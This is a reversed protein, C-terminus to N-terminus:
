PYDLLGSSVHVEYGHIHLLRMAEDRQLAPVSCRGTKIKYQCGISLLLNMTVLWKGTMGTEPYIFLEGETREFIVIPKRVKMCRKVIKKDM